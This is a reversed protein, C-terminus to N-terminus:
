ALLCPWQSYNRSRIQPAPIEATVIGVFNYPIQSVTFLREARTVAIQEKINRQGGLFRGLFNLARRVPVWGYGREPRQGRGQEM